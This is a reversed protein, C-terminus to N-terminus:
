QEEKPSTDWKWLAKLAIGSFNIVLFNIVAKYACDILRFSIMSQCLM